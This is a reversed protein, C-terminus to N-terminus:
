GPFALRVARELDEARDGWVGGDDWTLCWATVRAAGTVSPAEAGVRAYVRGRAHELVIVGPRVVVDVDPLQLALLAAHLQALTM